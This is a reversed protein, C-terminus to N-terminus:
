VATEEMEVPLGDLDYLGIPHGLRSLPETIQSAKGVVVITSRDPRIYRNAVRAVDEATVSAIRDRYGDFYDTPLHYLEMEQVRNALDNATQVSAPFVGMLYDRATALEDPDVEASRIRELESLIERISEMTVENRVATSVVFPGAHRRFVFASHAGYTFGHKERLNMMIRSNFIEGLIANMVIIPVYDESQRPVGVHGVRIESQVSEPRDILYIRSRELVPAQMTGEPLEEGKPWSGFASRAMEMFRDPDVEGAVILSTHNPVYIRGYLGLVDDRTMQRLTQETGILPDSYRTQSFVFQSFRNAAIAGPQDRQQLIATLRDNRIRDLEKQEFRPRLLVDAFLAMGAELNRGLLDLWVYSADWDCGTGLFAGLSALSDALALADRDGAGEDLLGATLSAIGELGPVDADSGSRVVARLSVLPASVRRAILVRLGNDFTERIVDPFRFPRPESPTPPNARFDSM